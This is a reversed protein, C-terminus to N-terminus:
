FRYELFLAALFSELSSKSGFIDKYREYEAFLGVRAGAHGDGEYLLSASAGQGWGKFSTTKPDFKKGDFHGSKVEVLTYPLRADVRIKFPSLRAELGVLPKAVYQQAVQTRVVSPAQGSLPDPIHDEEARISRISRQLYPIGVEAEGGVFFRFQGGASLIAGATPRADYGEPSQTTTGDVTRLNKPLETKTSVAKAGIRFESRIFKEAPPKKGAAIAEDREKYFDRVPAVNLMCGTMSTLSLVAALVYSRLSM